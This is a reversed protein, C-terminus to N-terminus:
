KTDDSRMGKFKIANLPCAKKCKLCRVYMCRESRIEKNEIDIADVPCVELCKGCKNCLKKDIVPRIGLYYHFYPIIKGYSDKSTLLSEILYIFKYYMRHLQIKLANRKIWVRSIKNIYNLNYIIRKKNLSINQKIHPIESHNIGLIKCCVMDTAGNDQSALLIGEWRPESYVARQMDLLGDVIVLDSKIYENVVTILKEINKVHGQRRTTKHVLGLFNKMSFTVNTISHKKLKPLNIIKDVNKLLTPIKIEKITNDDTQVTEYRVKDLNILKFGLDKSLEDIGLVKFTTETDFEYGSSEAVIPTADLNQIEKVLYKIIKTSTTAKPFPAVFNPKLLVKEGKKVFRKLGGLENLLNHLATELEKEKKIQTVAVKYKKM